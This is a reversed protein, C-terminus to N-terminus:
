LIQSGMLILMTNPTLLTCLFAIDPVFIIKLPFQM